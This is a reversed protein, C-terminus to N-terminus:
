DAARFKSALEQGAIYGFTLAPGLNIGGSPYYGGMISSMDAGVVFLKPIAAGDTDLAAAKADTKLGLFTGFSGPLVKVAYYPGRGIPAVCPNPKVDPDGGKRNFATSGREFLPDEGKAAHKNYFKVTAELEAASIGCAHALEAISRGMKIYGSNVFPKVPLPSPRSAGLGYRRQFAHDCILWSAIEEGPPTAKIMATVYDYYGHAENVFRRGNALVAILGPKARDIIHPFRGDTGDSYPVLSVPCWAAPSAISADVFGGVAEALRLGDGSASQPAVSWHRVPTSFKNAVESWREEDHPFGGTALVTGFRALIRLPGNETDVAAGCVSHGDFILEKASTSVRIDVDLREASLALRAILANGNALQTARRYLFLDFFHRGVRKIVHALSKISRTMTLFAKLDDGAMIPMGMFSTERMPRRLKNFLDGLARGSIPAACLQHGGLAAGETWGHMDPIGNGDVFQLATKTHFFEAMEPAADLFAKVKVPEFYPETEHRLYTFPGDPADNYGAKRAFLNGPAWIWGGSWATAGGFVPEKEVVIVKLGHWAATVAASLGGAGSGIVLVDCDVTRLKAAQGQRRVTDNLVSTEM